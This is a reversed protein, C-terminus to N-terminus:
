PFYCDKAGLQKASPYTALADKNSQKLVASLKAKDGATAAAVADREDQTVKANAKVYAAAASAISAPPTWAALKDTFDKDIAVASAGLHSKWDAVTNDIHLERLRDASVLCLRNVKADYQVKTLAAGGGSGGGCAALALVSVCTTLTKM